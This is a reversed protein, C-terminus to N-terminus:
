PWIQWGAKATFIIVLIGMIPFIVLLMAHLQVGVGTALGLALAWWWSTKERNKLFELMALLFLLIFFPMSNTNWAFRSFKIAFYSITYLGTLTLSLNASFYKKLFYFLLPITLISFFLDPYALKDPYDGFFEASAIQFYYFMPGLCFQTNGMNPGLEPLKIRGHIFNDVITADNAQDDDFYLWNKHQYTRLFTGVLIIALM